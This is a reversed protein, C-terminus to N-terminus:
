RRPPAFRGPQALAFVGRLSESIRAAASRALPALERTAQALTWRDTPGSVSVAAVVNDTADFIPAAVSIDGYGYEEKSVAYGDLRAKRLAQLIQSRDTLTNPTYRALTSREIIDRAQGEPLFALIARGAAICWAPFWTGPVVDMAIARRSPVRTVYYVETGYPEALSVAEEGEKTVELLYPLAAAALRDNRLYAFGFELVRPSLAYLKTREDQILFGMEELTYVLRQAASRELGTAAVIDILRMPGDVGAFARLVALGKELSAVFAFSKKGDKAAM